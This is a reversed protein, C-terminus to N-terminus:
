SLSYQLMLDEYSRRGSWVTDFDDKTITHKKVGGGHSGSLYELVYTGDILEISWFPGKVSNEGKEIEQRKKTPYTKKGYQLKNSRSM